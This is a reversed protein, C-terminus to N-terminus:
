TIALATSSSNVYQSESKKYMVNAVIRCRSIPITDFHHTDSVLSAECSEGRMKKSVVIAPFNIQDDVASSEYKM